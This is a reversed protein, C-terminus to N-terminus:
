EPSRLRRPWDPVLWPSRAQPTETDATPVDIVRDGKPKRRMAPGGMILDVFRAVIWVPAVIKWFLTDEISLFAAWHQASTVFCYSDQSTWDPHGIRLLRCYESTDETHPMGLFLLAVTILGLLALPVKDAWCLRM